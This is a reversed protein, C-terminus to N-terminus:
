EGPRGTALGQQNPYVPVLLSLSVPLNKKTDKHQVSNLPLLRVFVFLARLHTSPNRHALPTREKWGPWQASPLDRHNVQRKTLPEECMLFFLGPTPPPPILPAELYSQRAANHLSDRIM